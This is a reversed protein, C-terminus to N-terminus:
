TWYPIYHLTIISLATSLQYLPKIANLFLYFGIIFLASLLKSLSTLLSIPRYNNLQDTSGKKFVPVVKALKLKNPFVGLTLCHNLMISLPHALIPAAVKLFHVDMDDHGRAKNLKLANIQQMIEHPTTPQLHISNLCPNKLYLLEDINMDNSQKLSAAVSKGVSSFYNNFEEAIENLDSTRSNNVTILNPTLSNNKSPLLTRM